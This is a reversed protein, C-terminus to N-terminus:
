LTFFAILSQLLKLRTHMCQTLHQPRELICLWCQPCPAVACDAVEWCDFCVLRFPSAFHTHEHTPHLLFLPKMSAYCLSLARSPKEAWVVATCANRLLAAVFFLWFQLKWVWPSQVFLVMCCAFCRDAGFEWKWAIANDSLCACLNCVPQMSVGKYLSSIPVFQSISWTSLSM